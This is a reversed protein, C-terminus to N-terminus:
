SFFEGIRDFFSKKNPSQEGNNMTGQLERLLEKQHSNLNVPTEVTVRCLLDGTMSTRVPKVGKGRLRFLRGTQTGEPIKLNVRGDLTPIEVDKGLAADTFSIPVEMYLDAGDRQFVSHERVVIEVYLDGPQVGAGGAEGEGTLRVRDNNDVGAPISVELTRSKDKVGSGHCVNCPNKVTKGRGSCTPCTQNVAFFGQQMRVQGAGRCTGCTQIDKADKAGKGDCATCPAPATFTVNKKVGKVAEELTLEMVYRLDAGRRQRSQGGGGQRGSFMDGFIDGFQGFMDQFNGGQFGGGGMGGMGDFAAHGMRDYASRKEADSLIEYAESAEKFKAEASSDDPNRDPHYKMALKRYAKKIEDESSSKAVGLVEYYDRKAM